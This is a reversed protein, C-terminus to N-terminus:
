SMKYGVVSLVGAPIAVPGAVLLAVLSVGGLFGFCKKM